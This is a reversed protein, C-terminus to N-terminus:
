IEIEYIFFFTVRFYKCLSNSKKGTLHLLVISIIHLGNATAYTM